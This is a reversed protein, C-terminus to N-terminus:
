MGVLHLHGRRTSTPAGHSEVLVLNARTSREEVMTVQGTDMAQELALLVAGDRPAHLADSSEGSVARAARQAELVFPDHDTLRSTERRGDRLAMTITSKPGDTLLELEGAPCDAHLAVSDLAAGRTRLTALRQDQYRLEATAVTRQADESELATGTVGAPAHQMLRNAFTVTDRM